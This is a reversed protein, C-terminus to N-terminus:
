NRSKRCILCSIPYSVICVAAGAILDICSHQKVFVTSICILITLITFVIRWAPTSFRRSNWMTISVGVAAIVHLSPCVNTPTDLDYLFKVIRIFVSDGTIETPRLNQYTPYIFYIITTITFSVILFWMFKKFLPIDFLLTYLHCWVLYAFWLFYPIVFVACFPILDDLKCYVLHYDFTFLREQSAFFLGFIIWFILLKVHSFEPTNIKSLRFKRYDIM